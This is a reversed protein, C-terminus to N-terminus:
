KVSIRSMGDLYIWFLAPTPVASRTFLNRTDIRSLAKIITEARALDTRDALTLAGTPLVHSLWSPACPTALRGTDRVLDRARAILAAIERDDFQYSVKYLTEMLTQTAALQTTVRATYAINPRLTFFCRLPTHLLEVLPVGLVHRGNVQIELASTACFDLVPQSLPVSARVYISDVTHEWGMPLGSAGYRPLNTHAKTAVRDTGPIRQSPVCDFIGAIEGSWLKTPDVAFAAYLQRREAPETDTM